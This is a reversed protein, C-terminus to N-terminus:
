IDYDYYVFSINRIEGYVHCINSAQFGKRESCPPQSCASVFADTLMAFSKSNISNTRLETAEVVAEGFIKSYDGCNYEAVAGFHAYLKLSLTLDRAVIRKLHFFENDFENLMQDYHDLLDDVTPPVGQKYFLVQGNEDQYM